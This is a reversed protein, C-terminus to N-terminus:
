RVEPYSWDPSFDTIKSARMSTAATCDGIGNQKLQQVYSSNEDIGNVSSNGVVLDDTDSIQRTFAQAFSIDDILREQSAEKSGNVAPQNLLREQKMQLGECNSHNSHDLLLDASDITALSKPSDFTCNAIIFAAAEEQSMGLNKESTQTQPSFRSRDLRSVATSVTGYNSWNEEKVSENPQSDPSDLPNLTLYNTVSAVHVFNGLNLDNDAPPSPDSTDFSHTYSLDGGIALGDKDTALSCSSYASDILRPRSTRRNNEKNSNDLASPISSFENFNSNVSFVEDILHNECGNFSTEVVPRKRNHPLEVPQLHDIMDGPYETKVTARPELARRPSEFTMEYRGSAETTSMDFHAHPPTSLSSTQDNFDGYDFLNHFDWDNPDAMVGPIASQFGHPTYSYLCPSAEVSAVAEVAYNTDPVTQPM